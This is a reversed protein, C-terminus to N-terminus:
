PRYISFNQFENRARACPANRSNEPRSTAAYMAAGVNAGATDSIPSVTLEVAVPTDDKRLRVTDYHDYWDGNLLKAIIERARDVTQRLWFSYRSASSRRQESNYSASLKSTGLISSATPHEVGSPTARLRPLRLWNRTERRIERTSRSSPQLNNSYLPSSPRLSAFASIGLM